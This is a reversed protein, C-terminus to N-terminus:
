LLDAIASELKDILRSSVKGDEPFSVAAISIVMDEFEHGTITHAKIVDRIKKEVNGTTERSCFPLLINFRGGNNHFITDTDRLVSKIVQKVLDPIFNVYITHDSIEIGKHILLAMISIPYNARAASKIERNLMESFSYVIIDEGEAATKLYPIGLVKCIKARINEEDFPTDIYEFVGFDMADIILKKGMFESIIIVPLNWANPDDKLMRVPELDEASNGNIAWIIAKIGNDPSSLLEIAEKESGASILQINLNKLIGALMLSTIDTEDIVLIMKQMIVVM